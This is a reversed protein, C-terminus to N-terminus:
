RVMVHKENQFGQMSLLFHTGKTAMFAIETLNKDSNIGSIKPDKSKHNVTSVDGYTRGGDSSVSVTM